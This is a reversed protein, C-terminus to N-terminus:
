LIHFGPPILGKWVLLQPPAGLLLGNEEGRPFSVGAQSSILSARHGEYRRAAVHGKRDGPTQPAVARVQGGPLETPVRGGRLNGVQAQHDSGGHEGRDLLAPRREPSTIRVTM